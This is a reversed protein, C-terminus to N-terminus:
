CEPAGASARARPGGRGHSRPRPLEIGIATVGYCSSLDDLKPRVLSPFDSNELVARALPLMGVGLSYQKTLPDVRVLQEAVLARLIHLATSPVLDLAEAIAKLGLPM